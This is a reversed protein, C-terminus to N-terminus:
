APERWMGFTPPGDPAPKYNAIVKFGHRRYLAVNRDSSTELFAPRGAADLQDLRSKLLRSGIGHGQADPTVGLFWLYDHARDMPHHKDMAARLAVLRGFRGLGTTALLLPLTRLEDILPTPGLSESPMWVATAGGAAPRMVEGDPLALGALIFQFFKLRAADRRADNRVFWSVHPDEVFADSLDRAALDLDSADVRKPAEAGRRMAEIDM